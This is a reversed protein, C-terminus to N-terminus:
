SIFRGHSVVDGTTTYLINGRLKLNAGVPQWPVRFMLQREPECLREIIKREALAPHKSLVPGLTVLVERVSQHFDAESPNRRRVDDYIGELKEDLM